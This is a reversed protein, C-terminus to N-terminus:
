AHQMEKGHNAEEWEREWAPKEYRSGPIEEFRIRLTKGCGCWWQLERMPPESPCIGSSYRRVMAFDCVPCQMSPVDYDPRPDGGRHWDGWRMDSPFKRDM